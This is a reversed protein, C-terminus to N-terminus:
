VATYDTVTLQPLKQKLRDVATAELKIDTIYLIRLKELRALHALAASTIKTGYINLSELKELRSVHQMARDGVDCKALFLRQLSSFRTVEEMGADTVQTAAIHLEKLTEESGLQKLQEDGFSTGAVNVAVVNGNDDTDALGMALLADTLPRGQQQIFLRGVDPLSIPTGNFALRRLRTLSKLQHLSAATIRTFSLNLEELKELGALHALGADTIQSGNLRLQRLGLCAKIVGLGEDDVQTDELTVSEMQALNGVARLDANTAGPALRVTKALSGPLRKPAKLSTPKGDGRRATGPRTRSGVLESIPQGSPLIPVPRGVHNIFTHESDVGMAQYITALLDQYTLPREAPREGKDNTQGIVQGMELGGGFLMACGSPGWHERGPCGKHIHIRPTRGFEGVLVVLVEDTMGRDDLDEILASVSQDVQPGRQRMVEFINGHVAHDDWGIMSRDYDGRGDPSYRIAVVGAGAEVLRRALLCQQGAMHNGYRERLRTPERTFDFARAAAGGSLLDFAQQRFGDVAHLQELGAVDSVREVTLRDLQRLMQQRDLLRTATGASELNQVVFGPKSPDGSVQFPGYVPGLFAPGGRHLGKGIDIYQPLATGNAVPRGRGPGKLG